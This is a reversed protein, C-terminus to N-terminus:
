ARITGGLTTLTDIIASWWATLEDERLTREASQFICRLLLAYHGAPVSLGRPDRFIETPTVLRLEGIGLSGIADKVTRWSMAEPFTFSFDREVAQYRSLERATTRKLPIAYLRELDIEALYLPQRLKRRATEARSLEGLTAVPRGGLLASARRGPELCSKSDAVDATFSVTAGDFLSLLAQVVGKLEFFPADAASYLSTAAVAGTLGLTLAERETVASTTGSFVAGREFLRVTRVDRNLNHALMTVMGPVLTPRLLSAEESLPNELAITGEGGAEAAAVLDPSFRRADEPSAFTSSIAESYGLALLRSRVATEAAATPQEIVIGPPPLTDAFANYGYVRAIEEILDIERELDLRWSPLTVEFSTDSATEEGHAKLTCGLASLYREVLPRGIDEEAGADAATTDRPITAGLHRNVQAVSLAIPPRSATRAAIEPTILDILGGEVHGGSSLIM